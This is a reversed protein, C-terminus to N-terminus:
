FFIIQMLIIKLSVLARFLYLIHVIQKMLAESQRVLFNTNVNEFDICLTLM